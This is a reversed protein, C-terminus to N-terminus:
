SDNKFINSIYIFLVSYTAHQLSLEQPLKLEFQPWGFITESRLLMKYFYYYILRQM